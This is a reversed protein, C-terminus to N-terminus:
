RTTADETVSKNATSSLPLGEHWDWDWMDTSGIAITSVRGTRLSVSRLEMLDISLNRKLDIGTVTRVSVILETASNSLALVRFPPTLFSYDDKVRDQAILTRVLRTSGSDINLERIEAANNPSGHTQEVTILRQSDPLWRVVPYLDPQRNLAKRGSGDPHVVCLSANGSVYQWNLPLPYPREPHESGFFAVWNGDPSLAPRYGDEIMLRSTQTQLSYEYLAPREVKPRERIRKKQRAPDAPTLVGGPELISYILSNASWTCVYDGGFHDSSAIRQVRGTRWEVISLVLPGVYSNVLYPSGSDDGGEIFAIYRGDRSWSSLSNALRQVRGEAKPYVQQVHYTQTDYVCLRFSDFDQLSGVHLLIYRGDPSFQPQWAYTNGAEWAPITTPLLLKEHIVSTTDVSGATVGEPVKQVIMSNKSTSVFDLLYVLYGDSHPSLLNASGSASPGAASRVPLLGPTLGRLRFPPSFELYQRGSQVLPRAPEKKSASQAPAGAGLATAMVTVSTAVVVVRSLILGSRCILKM